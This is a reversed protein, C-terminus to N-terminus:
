IVKLKWSGTNFWIFIAIGKLITSITIAWFIGAPGLDM